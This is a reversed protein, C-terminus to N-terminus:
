TRSFLSLRSHYIHGGSRIEMIPGDDSVEQQLQDLQGATLSGTMAQRLLEAGLAVIFTAFTLPLDVNDM